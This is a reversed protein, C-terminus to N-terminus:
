KGNNHNKNSEQLAKQQDPTLVAKIKDNKDKRLADLKANDPNAGLADRQTMFNKNIELVKAYQDTSLKAVENIHDTQKKAREDVSLHAGKQGNPAAAAQAFTGSVAFAMLITVIITKKM